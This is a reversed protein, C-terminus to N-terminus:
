NGGMLQGICEPTLTSEDLIIADREAILARATDLADTLDPANPALARRLTATLHENVAAAARRVRPADAFAAPDLKINLM